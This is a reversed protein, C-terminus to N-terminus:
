YHSRFYEKRKSLNRIIMELSIVFFKKFGPKPSNSANIFAEGEHKNAFAHTQKGNEWYSYSKGNSNILIAPGDRLGKSWYGLFIEAPDNNYLLGIGEKLDKSYFGSYVKGTKWIFDGFGSMWGSKFEGFYCNGTEFM